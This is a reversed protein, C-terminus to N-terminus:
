QDRLIQLIFYWGTSGMPLKKFLRKNEKPLRFTLYRMDYFIQHVEHGEKKLADLKPIGSIIDGMGQAKIFLIKKKKM